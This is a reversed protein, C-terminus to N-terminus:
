GILCTSLVNHIQFICLGYRNSVKRPLAHWNHIGAGWAVLPTETEYIDGAGHSGKDTMGHDSTLIFATEGDDFQEKFLQYMEFIGNDTVKLNEFFLRNFVNINIININKIKFITYSM